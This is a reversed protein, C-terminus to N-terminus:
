GALGHKALVERVSQAIDTAVQANLGPRVRVKLKMLPLPPLGVVKVVGDPNRIGSGASVDPLVTVGLGSRVASYVGSLHPASVVPRSRLGASMLAHETQRRLACPDDFLVTDVSRDGVVFTPSAFWALPLTGANRTRSSAPADFVLAVDVQGADVATLLPASCDLRLRVETDPFQMRLIDFLEPLLIDAAHESAGIMLIPAHSIALEAVLDDHRHLLERAGSLLLEGADTFKTTRGDPLVLKQGLERELKRVHQSVASQTLRLATAARHFGGFDAIAVFSRLPVIDLIPEM